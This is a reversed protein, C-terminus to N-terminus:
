FQELKFNDLLIYQTTDSKSNPAFMGIGLAFNDVVRSDSTYTITDQEWNATRPWKFPLEYSYSGMNASLYIAYHNQTFKDKIWYTLRYNKFQSPQAANSVLRLVTDLSDPYYVKLSWQGGNTPVESDFSYKTRRVSYPPYGDMGDQWGSLSSQGQSEFSSEKLVSTQNTPNTTSDKCGNLAILLIYGFQCSVGVLLVSKLIRNM